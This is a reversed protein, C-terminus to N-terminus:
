NFNFPGYTQGLRDTYEGAAPVLDDVQWGRVTDQMRQDQMKPRAAKRVRTGAEENTLPLTDAFDRLDLHWDRQGKKNALVPIDKLDFTISMRGIHGVM